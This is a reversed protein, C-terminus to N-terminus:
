GEKEKEKKREEKKGGKGGDKGTSPISGLAVCISPLCAVM